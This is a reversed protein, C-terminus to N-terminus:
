QFCKIKQTNPWFCCRLLCSCAKKPQFLHICFLIKRWFRRELNGSFAGLLPKPTMYFTIFTQHQGNIFKIKSGNQARSQFFTVWGCKLSWFTGNMPSFKSLFILIKKKPPRGVIYWKALIAANWICKRQKTGFWSMKFISLKQHQNKQNSLKFPTITKAKGTEPVLDYEPLSTAKQQQLCHCLAM